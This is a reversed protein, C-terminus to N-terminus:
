YFLSTDCGDTEIWKLKTIKNLAKHSKKNNTIANIVALIRFGRNRTLWCIEKSRFKENITLNSLQLMKFIEEILPLSPVKFEYNTAMIGPFNSSPLKFHVRESDTMPKQQFQRQMTPTCDIKFINYSCDFLNRAVNGFSTVIRGEFDGKDTKKWDLFYGTQPPTWINENTFDKWNEPHFRYSYTMDMFIGWIMGKYVANTISKCHSKELMRTIQEPSMIFHKILMDYFENRPLWINVTSGGKCNTVECLCSERRFRSIWIEWFSGKDTDVKRYLMRLPYQTGLEPTTWKGRKKKTSAESIYSLKIGGKPSRNGHQRRMKKPLYQGGKYFHGEERHFKIIKTTYPRGEKRADNLCDQVYGKSITM